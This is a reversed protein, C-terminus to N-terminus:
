YGKSMDIKSDPTEGQALQHLLKALEKQRIEETMDSHGAMHPTMVVNPLLGFDYESPKTNKRTELDTPYNYWVDLGARIRGTELERYLAEEYIVNGRAINVIIANDPLLSVEDTGLLGRTSETLPVAVFLVQARPLIEKLDDVSYMEINDVSKGSSNICIVEMGFGSCMRAIEKGIAGYGLIVATKGYLLMGRQEIYRITWDHQRLGKDAIQIERAASLLLGLAHEAAAIANHHLNYVSIKPYQLLLENAKVPLGAWPIIVGKLNKCTDLVEKTPRGSILAETDAAVTEGNTLSISDSLQDKFDSIWDPDFGQLIHVHLKMRIIYYSACKLAM